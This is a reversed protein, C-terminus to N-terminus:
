SPGTRGLAIEEKVANATSQLASLQARRSKIAEFGAKLLAAALHADVREKPTNLDVFAGKEDVTPREIGYGDRVSDNAKLQLKARAMRYANEDEAYKKAQDRIFRLAEDLQRSLRAMEKVLDGPSPLDIDPRAEM